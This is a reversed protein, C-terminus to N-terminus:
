SHRIVSCSGLPATSAPRTKTSAVVLWYVPVLFYVAVVALVGVVVIRASRKRAIGSNGHGIRRGPGRVPAPRRVSAAATPRTVASM